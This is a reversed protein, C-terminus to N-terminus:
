SGWQNSSIINGSIIDSLRDICYTLKLLPRQELKGLMSKWHRNRIWLVTIGTIRFLDISPISKNAIQLEYNHNSKGNVKTSGELNTLYSTMLKVASDTSGYAWLKALLLNRRISDLVKTLEIVTVAVDQCEDDLTERWYNTMKLLATFCSHSSLFGSSNNPFLLLVNPM